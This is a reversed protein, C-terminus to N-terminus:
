NWDFQDQERKLMIMVCMFFRNGLMLAMVIEFGGFPLVWKWDVGVKVVVRM